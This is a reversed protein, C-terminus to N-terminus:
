GSRIMRRLLRVQPVRGGIWRSSVSYFEVLSSGCQHALAHVVRARILSLPVARGYWMKGTPHLFQPVTERTLLKFPLPIPCKSLIPPPSSALVSKCDHPPLPAVTM